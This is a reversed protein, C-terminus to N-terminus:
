HRPPMGGPGRRHGLQVEEGNVLATGCTSQFVTTTVTGDPATDVLTGATPHRCVEPAGRFVGQLEVTRVGESGSLTLLGTEMVSPADLDVQRTLIGTKRVATAVEEGPRQGSHSVDRTEEVTYQRASLTRESVTTVFGSEEGSGGLSDSHTVTMTRTTEFRYVADEACAAGSVLTVSQVEEVKGDSTHTPRSPVSDTGTDAGPPPPPPPGGHHGGRSCGSWELKRTALLTQGCVEQTTEEPTDDCHAWPGSGDGRLGMLGRGGLPIGPPAHGIGANGSGVAAATETLAEATTQEEAQCGIGALSLAGFTCLLKMHARKV